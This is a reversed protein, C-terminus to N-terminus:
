ASSFGNICSLDIKGVATNDRFNFVDQMQPLSSPAVLYGHLNKDQEVYSIAIHYLNKVNLNNAVVKSLSTKLHSSLMKNHYGAERVLSVYSDKCYDKDSLKLGSVAIGYAWFKSANCILERYHNLGNHLFNHKVQINLGHFKKKALLRKYIEPHKIGSVGFEMGSDYLVDLIDLTNRILNLEFRNDWHLMICNLNDGFYVKAWDIQSYLYDPLLNIEPSNNNSTSGVKFTVKLDRIGHTKIWESLLLSSKQFDVSIGNIPYNYASDVYRGGNEYFCDLITFVADKNVSWGWMATGLCLEKM